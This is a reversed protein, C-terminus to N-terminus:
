LHYTSSLRVLPLSSAFPGSAIATISRLKSWAQGCWGPRSSPRGLRHLEAARELGAGSRLCRM